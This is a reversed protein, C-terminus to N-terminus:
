KIKGIQRYFNRGILVVILSVIFPGVACIFFGFAELLLDNPNSIKSVDSIDGVLKVLLYFGIGIVVFLAEFILVEKRLFENTLANPGNILRIIRIGKYTAFGMTTLIVIILLVFNEM